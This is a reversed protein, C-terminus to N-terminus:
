SPLPWVIMRSAAVIRVGADARPDAALRRDEFGQHRELALDRHDGRAAAVALDVAEVDGLVLM